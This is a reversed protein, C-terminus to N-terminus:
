KTELRLVKQYLNPQVRSQSDPIEILGRETSLVLNKTHARSWGSSMAHNYCLKRGEASVSACVVCM